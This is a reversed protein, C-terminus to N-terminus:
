RRDRDGVIYHNDYSVSSIQRRHRRRPPSYPDLPSSPHFGAAQYSSPPLRVSALAASSNDREGEKIDKSAEINSEEGGTVMKNGNVKQVPTSPRANAQLFSGNAMSKLM